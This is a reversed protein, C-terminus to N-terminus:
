GATRGGTAAHVPGDLQLDGGPGVEQGHGAQDHDGRCRDVGGETLFPEVVEAERHRLRAGVGDVGLGGVGGGRDADAAVEHLVPEPGPNSGSL